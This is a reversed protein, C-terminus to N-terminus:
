NLINLNFVYPFTSQQHSPGMLGWQTTLVSPLKLAQELTPQQIMVFELLMRKVMSHVGIGISTDENSYTLVIPFVKLFIGNSDKSNDNIINKRGGNAETQTM